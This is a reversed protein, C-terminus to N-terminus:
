SPCACGSRLRFTLFRFRVPCTEEGWVTVAPKEAGRRANRATGGCQTRETQRTLALRHLPFVGPVCQMAHLNGTNRLM